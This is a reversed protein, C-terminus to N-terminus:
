IGTCERVFLFRVMNTCNCANDTLDNLSAIAAVFFGTLCLGSRSVAM